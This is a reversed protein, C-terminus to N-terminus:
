SPKTENTQRQEPWTTTADSVGALWGVAPVDFCHGRRCANIKVLIVLFTTIIEPTACGPFKCLASTESGRNKCVKIRIRARSQRETSIRFTQLKLSGCVHVSACITEETLAAGGDITQMRRAQEIRSSAVCLCFDLGRM